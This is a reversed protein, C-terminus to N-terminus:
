PRMRFLVKSVYYSKIPNGEADLAPEFRARQKISDCVTKQFEEGETSLQIQCENVQGQPDVILRFHVIAQEGKYVAKRPYDSDRLWDDNAPTARRTLSRHKEVDIGWHTLLEDMCKSFAAFPKALSGTELILPSVGPARFHFYEVAEARQPDLTVPDLLDLPGLDRTRKRLEEEEETMPAIRVASTFIMSPLAGVHGTYFEVKQEPEAPGFRLTANRRSRARKLPHGSLSLRFYEGPEFRDMALVISQDGEGFKRALRCSDEAYDLVWATSPALRLPERSIAATPLWAGAIFFAALTLRSLTTM